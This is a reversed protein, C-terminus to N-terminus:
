LTANGEGGRAGIMQNFRGFGMLGVLNSDALQVHWGLEGLWGKGKPQEGSGNRDM